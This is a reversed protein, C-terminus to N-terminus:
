PHAESTSLTHHSAWPGERLRTASSEFELLRTPCPKEYVPVPIEWTGTVIYVGSPSRLHSGVSQAEWPSRAIGTSHHRSGWRPRCRSWKCLPLPRCTGLVSSGSEPNRNRTRAAADSWRAVLPSHSFWEAKWLPLSSLTILGVERLKFSVLPRHLSLLPFEHFTQLALKGKKHTKIEPEYICYPQMVLLLVCATSDSLGQILGLNLSRQSGWKRPRYFPCLCQVQRGQTTESFETMFHTYYALRLAGWM